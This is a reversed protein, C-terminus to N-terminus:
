RFVAKSHENSNKAWIIVKRQPSYGIAILVTGRRKMESTEEFGFSWVMIEGRGFRNMM